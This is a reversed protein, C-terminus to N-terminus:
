KNLSFFSIKKIDINEHFYTTGDPFALVFTNYSDSGRLAIFSGGIVGKHKVALVKLLQMPKGDLPQAVELIKPHFGMASTFFEPLIVWEAGETFAQTALREAMKLNASEDAMMQSAAIRM